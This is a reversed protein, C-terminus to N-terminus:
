PQIEQDQQEWDAFRALATKYERPPLRATQKIYGHLVRITQNKVYFLLRLGTSVHRLEWIPGDVHRAWPM